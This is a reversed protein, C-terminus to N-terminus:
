WCILLWFLFLWLAGRTLCMWVIWLSVLPFSIYIYFVYFLIVFANTKSQNSNISTPLYRWNLRLFIGCKVHIANAIAIKSKICLWVALWTLLWDNFSIMQIQHNQEIQAIFTRHSSQQPQCNNRRYCRVQDIVPSGCLMVRKSSNSGRGVLALLPKTLPLIAFQIILM